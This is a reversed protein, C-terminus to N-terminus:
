GLEGPQHARQDRRPQRQQGVPRARHGLVLRAAGGQARSRRRRRRRSGRHHRRHVLGACLPPLLLPLPMCTSPVTASPATMCMFINTHQTAATCSSACAATPACRCGCLWARTPGAAPPLAGRRVAALAVHKKCAHRPGSISAALRAPQDHLACKCPPPLCRAAAQYGSITM